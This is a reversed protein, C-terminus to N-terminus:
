DSIHQGQTLLYYLNLISEATSQVDLYTSTPEKRQLHQAMESTDEPPEQAIFSSLDGTAKIATYSFSNQTPTAQCPLTLFAAAALTLPVSAREKRDAWHIWKGLFSRVHFAWITINFQFTSPLTASHPLSFLDNSINLSYLWGLLNISVEKHM